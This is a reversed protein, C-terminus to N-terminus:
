VDGLKDELRSIVQKLQKDEGAKLELKWSAQSVEADSIGFRKGIEKLKAGSYKRCFFISV